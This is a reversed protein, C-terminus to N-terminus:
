PRGVIVVSGAYGLDPDRVKPARPDLTFVSDDVMFGFTHRGPLVPIIASWTSGDPSRTMPDKAPNWKNFDGVVAIRHATHNEFVFTQPIPMVDLDSSSANRVPTQQAAPAVSSAVRVADVARSVMAGRAIFGVIAAAAAVALVSWVRGVGGPSSTVLAPEDAPAVRAAAAAAVVRRVAAADVKPVHRLEDIARRVLPDNDFDSM